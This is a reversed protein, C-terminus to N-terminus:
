ELYFGENKIKGELKSYSIIDHNYEIYVQNSEYYLKYSEVGKTQSLLKTLKVADDKINEAFCIATKNEDINIASIKNNRDDVKAELYIACPLEKLKTNKGNYKVTMTEDIYVPMCAATGLVCVVIRNDDLKERGITGTVKNVGQASAGMSIISLVFAILTKNYKTRM